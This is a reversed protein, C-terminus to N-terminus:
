SGQQKKGENSDNAAAAERLKENPVIKIEVRRNRQRGSETDNPAIPNSEGMGLPFIRHPSVNFSILQNAVIKARRESLEFNSKDSGESSAYGMVNAAEVPIATLLADLVQVCDVLGPSLNLNVLTANPGLKTSCPYNGDAILVKSSHGARGLAELIQPHILKQKLM